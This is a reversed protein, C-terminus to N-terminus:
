ITAENLTRKGPTVRSPLLLKWWRWITAENLTAVDAANTDGMKRPKWWRWITSENLSRSHRADLHVGGENGGDGSPPKM